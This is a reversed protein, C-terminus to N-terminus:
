AEATEGAPGPPGSAGHGRQGYAVVRLGDAVLVDVQKTWFGLSCTWGHALVVTPADDSGYSEANLRSGDASRVEIRQGPGTRALTREGSMRSRTGCRAPVRGTAAPHLSRVPSTLM